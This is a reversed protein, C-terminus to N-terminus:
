TAKLRSRIAIVYANKASLRASKQIRASNVVANEATRM